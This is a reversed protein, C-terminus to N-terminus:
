WQINKKWTCECTSWGSRTEWSRVLQQCGCRVAYEQNKPEKIKDLIRFFKEPSGALESRYNTLDWLDYDDYKVKGLVEDIIGEGKDFLAALVREKAGEVNQIFWVTVDAGKAIVYDLLDRREKWNELNANLWEFNGEEAAERFQDEFSIDKPEDVVKPTETAPEHVNSQESMTEPVEDMPVSQALQTQPKEADENTMYSTIIYDIRDTPRPTMTNTIEWVTERVAAVEREINQTKPTEASIAEMIAKKRADNLASYMRHKQAVLLDSKSASKLLEAFIHVSDSRLGSSVLGHTYTETSIAPRRCFQMVLDKRGNKIGELFVHRIAVDKLGRTPEESELLVLFYDISSTWHGEFMMVISRELVFGQDKAGKVNKLVAVLKMPDGLLKTSQSMGNLLDGVDFNNRAIVQSVYEIGRNDFIDALTDSGLPVDPEQEGVPVEVDGAHSPEDATSAATYRALIALLALTSLINM